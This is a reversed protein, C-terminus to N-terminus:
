SVLNVYSIHTIRIDNLKLGILGACMKLSTEIMNSFFVKKTMVPNIMSLDICCSLIHIDVYKVCTQKVFCNEKTIM